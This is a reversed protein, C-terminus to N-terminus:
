RTRVAQWIAFVTSNIGLNRWSVYALAVNWMTTSLTTAIAAGMMGFFPVLLANLIINLIAGVGFAKSATWQRGTMTMIYGVPGALANVANGLVLVTMPAYGATFNSGFVSLIWGGAVIIFIGAAVTYAFVGAAAIAILTQLQEYEGTNYYESILPAVIMNSANLGFAILATVRTAAGYIGADEPSSLSGLMLIDTKSQILAAGSILLFPFAIRIWRKRRYDPRVDFVNPPLAQRLWYTALFFSLLLAVAVLLLTTVATLKGWVLYGAIALGIVLVRRLLFYPADAQVVHKLGQLASQRLINLVILPLATMGVAMGAYMPGSADAPKLALAGAAVGGGVTVSALATWRTSFRLVGRLQAWEQDARFGSVFRILAGKFGLTCILGLVNLWTWVYVYTGYEDVPLLRALVVEMGFGLAAGGAKM